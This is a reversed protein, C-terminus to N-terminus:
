VFVALLMLPVIVQAQPVLLPPTFSSSLANLGLVSTCKVKTGDANYITDPLNGPNLFDDVLFSPLFSPGGPGASYPYTSTAPLNPSNIEIVQTLAHVAYSEIVSIRSADAPDLDTSHTM